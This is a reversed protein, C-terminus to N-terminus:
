NVPLLVTRALAQSVQGRMGSLHYWLVRTFWTSFNSQSEGKSGARQFRKYGRAMDKGAECFGTYGDQGRGSFDFIQKVWGAVKQGRRWLEKLVLSVM